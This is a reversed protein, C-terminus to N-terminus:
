SHRTPSEQLFSLVRKYEAVVKDRMKSDKNTKCDPNYKRCREVARELDLLFAECPQCGALHKELEDCMEPDLTEDLYESLSAFIQRCRPPKPKVSKVPRKRTQHRERKSLEKRLALRARHLRVRVTGERLGTIKVVEPTDLEEMDHLVLILRYQPPIANLAARIHEASEKQLVASEPSSHSPTGLAALEEGTPMLEELALNEKPAFKSRRRSMICRNRAVTYLWVSFAQPSDFKSIYPLLKLLVEQATDEADEQHGCVKMGFSMVTRELLRLGEDVRGSKLASLAKEVDPRMGNM